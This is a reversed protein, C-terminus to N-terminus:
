LNGLKIELELQLAYIYAKKLRENINDVNKLKWDIENIIMRQKLKKKACRNLMQELINM